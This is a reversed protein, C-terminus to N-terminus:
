CQGSKVAGEQDERTTRSGDRYITFPGNFNQVGYNISVHITQNTTGTTDTEQMIDELKDKFM